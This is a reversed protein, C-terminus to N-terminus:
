RRQLLDDVAKKSSNFSFKSKIQGFNMRDSVRGYSWKAFELKSGEFTFWDLMTMLQETNYTRKDLYAVMISQKESDTAKESVNRRLNNLQGAQLPGSEQNTNNNRPTTNRERSRAYPDYDEDIEEETWADNPHHTNRKNYAFTYSELERRSSQFSLLSSVQLYNEKDLVKPYCSKAVELKSSEFSLWGIITMVQDTMLSKDMIYQEIVTVKDSSGIREQVATKLMSMQAPTIRKDDRYYSVVNSKNDQRRDDWNDRNRYSNDDDKEDSFVSETNIPYSPEDNDLYLTRSERINMTKYMPDVACYYMTGGDVHIRGKYVLSAHSRNDRMNRYRPDNAPYFYYVKLEHMGQPVDAVTISNGYKRFHRGDLVLTLLKNDKLRVQLAGQRPQAYATSMLSFVVLVLTLAKKMFFPLQVLLLSM